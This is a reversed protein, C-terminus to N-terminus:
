KDAKAFRVEMRLVANFKAKKRGGGIPKRRDPQNAPSREMLKRDKGKRYEAGQAEWGPRLDLGAWALSPEFRRLKM